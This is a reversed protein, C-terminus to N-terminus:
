GCAVMVGIVGQGEEDRRGQWRGERTLREEDRGGGQVGVRSPEGEAEM